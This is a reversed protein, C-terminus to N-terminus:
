LTRVRADSLWRDREADRSPVRARSHVEGDVEVCLRAAHCYFDLVYPGIPHQKRFQMGEVKRGKLQLWLM